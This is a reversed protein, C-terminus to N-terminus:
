PHVIVEKLWFIYKHGNQVVLSDVGYDSLDDDGPKVNSHYNELDYLMWWKNADPDQSFGGITTIFRGWPDFTQYEFVFRKDEKAAAVMVDYFVSGEPVTVFKSYLAKEAWVSYQVRVKGGREHLDKEESRIVNAWSLAIACFVLLSILTKM